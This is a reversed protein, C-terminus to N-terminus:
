KQKSTKENWGEDKIKKLYLEIARDIEEKHNEFYEALAKKILDKPQDTYMRIKMYLEDPIYLNIGPM